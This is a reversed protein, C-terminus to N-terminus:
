GQDLASTLRAVIGLIRELVGCDFGESRVSSLSSSSAPKARSQVKAGSWGHKRVDFQATVFHAM